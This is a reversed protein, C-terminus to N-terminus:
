TPSADVCVVIMDKHPLKAPPCQLHVPITTGEPMAQLKGFAGPDGPDGLTMPLEPEPPIGVLGPDVPQRLAPGPTVAPGSGALM